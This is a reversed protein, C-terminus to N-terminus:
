ECTCSFWDPLFQIDDPMIGDVGTSLIDPLFSELMAKRYFPNNPCFMLGQYSAVAPRKTKINYQFWEKLYYDKYKLKDPSGAYLRNQPNYHVFGVGHHEIVKLGRAHCARVVKLLVERMADFDYRKDYHAGDFFIHRYEENKGCWMLVVTNIGGAAIKGAQLGAEKQTISFNDATWTGIRANRLWEPSRSGDPLDFDAGPVSINNNEVTKAM